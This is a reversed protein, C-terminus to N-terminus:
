EEGKQEKQKIALEGLVRIVTDKDLPKTLYGQLLDGYSAARQVDKMNVSTTLMVIFLKSRDIKLKQLDELLEFGDMGPMNIDLFILDPGVAQSMEKQHYTELIFKLAQYPDTLSIIEDAINMPELVATELFCTIKDDDILLIRNLKKM